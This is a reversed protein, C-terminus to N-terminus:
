RRNYVKDLVIGTAVAVNLSEFEIPIYINLDSLKKIEDNIGNGENGVVIVLKENPFQVDNLKSANKDLLTEFVKFGDNKLKILNQKLDKTEIVNLKFIAGQSSRIVKDNYPDLNEVIVTDFAFAKALRIITGVNGPDQLNNLAIVKNIKSSKVKTKDCVAIVKQPTETESLYKILNYSVKTANPYKNSDDSEFIESVIGNELAENVLHFGSVLFKQELNRYKKDQLKKLNKIIPNQKSTIIM